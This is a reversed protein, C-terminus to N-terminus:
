RGLHPYVTRRSRNFAPVEVIRDGSYMRSDYGNSGTANPDGIPAVPKGDAGLLADKGSLVADMEDCSSEREQTVWERKGAAKDCLWHAETFCWHKVQESAYLPLNFRLGLKSDIKASAVRIQAEIFPINVAKEIAFAEHSQDVAECDRAYAVFESVTLYVVQSM